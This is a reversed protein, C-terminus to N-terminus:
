LPQMEVNFTTLNLVEKTGTYESFGPAVVKIVYEGPTMVLPPDEVAPLFVRGDVSTLKTQEFGLSNSVTVEAGEIPERIPDLDVGQDILNEVVVLLSDVSKKAFIFNVEESDGSVVHLPLVNDLGVFAYESTEALELNLIDYDGPEINDLGIEGVSDTTETTEITLTEPATGIIMGGKIELDIGEITTNDAVDVARLLLDAAENITLTKIVVDGETVFLNNNIPSFPSNPPPPYTQATAYNDMSVTIKYEQPPLGPIRVNGDATTIASGHIAPTDTVSDVQVNAGGIPQVASNIVNVSLTGGGINAELGEPVFKSVFVIKKENGGSIWIVSVQAQKYDTEILDATGIGDFVDDAYEISTKITYTFNNREVTQSQAMPGSPIWGINGIEDYELNRIIEMQENALAVAGIKQKSDAMLKTVNFLAMYLSMTVIGVIAIGVVIEILTTGKKNKFVKKFM